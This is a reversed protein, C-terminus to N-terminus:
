IVEKNIFCHEFKYPSLSSATLTITSMTLLHCFALYSIVVCALKYFRAVKVGIFLFKRELSHFCPQWPLLSTDRYRGVAGEGRRSGEV